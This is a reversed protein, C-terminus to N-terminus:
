RALIDSVLVANEGLVKAAREGAIGLDYAARAAGSLAGLRHSLAAIAGALADGSGGKGMAPSGAANIYTETGDTIVTTNSKCVIVAELRKAHKKASAVIESEKCEGFLRQFEGRHPTLVLRCKHGNLVDLRGVLANLGDADVVLTGGFNQALYEIIRILEPNKGMGMGVAIADAGRMVDGLATEDFAIYGDKDSLPLLTAEKIRERYAAALSAAHCLTTLGAGARMASEAAILPAGIMNASGGLIRVRGYTGKHSAKKRAPLSPVNKETLIAGIDVKIGMDAMVTEGCYDSGDGLFHGYKYAAFTVTLDAEVAEGLAIGDDSGLGSPLDVSIVHAGCSNMLRVAEFYEGGVPRALGIGLLADVAFDYLDARIEADSLGVVKGGLASYANLRASAFDNRKEGVIVVEIRYGEIHMIRALSLGDAANNGSGVFVATFDTKKILKQVIRFMAEAASEIMLDESMGYARAREECERMEKATVIRKM